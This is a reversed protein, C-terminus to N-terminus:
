LEYVMATGELMNNKSFEKVRQQAARGLSLSSKKNELVRSLEEAMIQANGVPARLGSEKKTDSFLVEPIGGVPTSVVPLGAAMAEFLSFPLGEKVSTILYADFSRMYQKANQISGLFHVREAVNLRRARAVLEERSVPGDGGVIVLHTRIDTEIFSLASIATKLDKAPYLNAVMGIIHEHPEIGTQVNLWERAKERSLFSKSGFSVGNYITFIKRPPAIHKKLASVRDHECIAIVADTFYLGFKIVAVWLWKKWGKGATPDDFAWGHATFVTRTEPVFFSALAGLYGVKSSNLHLIDYKEDRLHKVLALWFPFDSLAPLSGFSLGRRLSSFHVVRIKNEVAWEHLDDGTESGSGITFEYREKLGDVIEAVYKQAGGREGLTVLMLVKQRKEPDM